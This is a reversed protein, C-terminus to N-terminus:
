RDCAPATIDGYGIGRRKTPFMIFLFSGFLGAGLPLNKILQKENPGAENFFCLQVNSGSIAFVLFVMLSSFAHVFDIFTIKFNDMKIKDQELEEEGCGDYSDCDNFLYLGKFTAIGYYLKGNGIFSDTFSSLFCSLSCLIIVALTLYKNARFCEGNNSFSPVLTEFVLVTGTPLLNSLNAASTALSKKTVSPPAARPLSPTPPAPQPLSPSLPAPQPLSPPLPPPTTQPPTLAQNAM